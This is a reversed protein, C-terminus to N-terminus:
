SATVVEQDLYNDKPGGEPPTEPPAGLRQRLDALKGEIDIVELLSGKQRELLELMAQLYDRQAALDAHENDLRKLYERLLGSSRHSRRRDTDHATRQSQM